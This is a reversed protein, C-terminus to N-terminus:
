LDHIFIGIQIAYQSVWDKRCFSELEKSDIEKLNPSERNFSVIQGRDSWSILRLPCRRDALKVMWGGSNLEDRIWHFFFSSILRWLFSWLPDWALENSNIGYFGELKRLPSFGRSHRPLSQLGEWQRVIIVRSYGPRCADGRVNARRPRGIISRHLNRWQKYKALQHNNGAVVQKPDVRQKRM